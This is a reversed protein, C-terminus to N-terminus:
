KENVVLTEAFLLFLSIISVLSRQISASSVCKHCEAGFERTMENTLTSLPGQKTTIYTQIPLERSYANNSLRRTVLISATAM